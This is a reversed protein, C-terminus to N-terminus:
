EEIKMITKMIITTIYTKNFMKKIKNNINNNHLYWITYFSIWCIIYTYIILANEGIRENTM